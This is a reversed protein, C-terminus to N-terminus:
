GVLDRYRVMEPDVDSHKGCWEGPKKVLPNPYYHCYGDQDESLRVGRRQEIKEADEFWHCTKCKLREM